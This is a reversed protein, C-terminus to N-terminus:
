EGVPLFAEPEISGFDNLQHRELPMGVVKACTGNKPVTSITGERQDIQAETAQRRRRDHAPTDWSAMARADPNLDVMEWVETTTQEPVSPSPKITSKARACSPGGLGLDDTAAGSFSALGDAFAPVAAALASTFAITCLKM